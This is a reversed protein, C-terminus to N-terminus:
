NTYWLFTIDYLIDTLYLSKHKKRWLYPYTMKECADTPRDLVLLFCLYSQNWPAGFCLGLVVAGANVFFNSLISAASCFDSDNFDQGILLMWAHPNNLQYLLRLSLWLICVCVFWSLLNYTICYRGILFRPPCVPTNFPFSQIAWSCINMIM